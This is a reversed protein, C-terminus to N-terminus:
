AEAWFPDQLSLLFALWLGGLLRSHGQGEAASLLSSPPSKGYAKRRRGGGGTGDVRNAVADSQSSTNNKKGAIFTTKESDTM